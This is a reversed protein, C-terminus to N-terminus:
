EVESEGKGKPGTLWVVTHTEREREKKTRKRTKDRKRVHQEEEKLELTIDNWKRRERVRIALSVVAYEKGARLEAYGRARLSLGQAHVTADVVIELYRRRPLFVNFIRYTSPPEQRAAKKKEQESQIRTIM